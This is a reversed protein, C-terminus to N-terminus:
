SATLDTCLQSIQRNAHESLRLESTWQCRKFLYKFVQSIKYSQTVRGCPRRWYASSNKDELCTAFGFLLHFFDLNCSGFASSPPEYLHLAFFGSPSVFALMLRLKAPVFIQIERRWFIHKSFKTMTHPSNIRPWFLPALNLIEFQEPPPPSSEALDRPGTKTPRGLIM